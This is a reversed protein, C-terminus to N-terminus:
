SYKLRTLDELLEVKTTITSHSLIFQIFLIWVKKMFRALVEMDTPRQGHHVFRSRIAYVHKVLSVIDMREQATSGLIYAMREGINDQIPESSDKLLMSEVAVLCFILKEYAERAVNNRSYILLADFLRQQFDTRQETSFIAILNKLLKQQHEEKPIEWFSPFPWRADVRRGKFVGSEYRYACYSEVNESGLPRVYLAAHPSTNVPHIIRLLAVAQEAKELCQECAYEEDAEITLSVAAFGQTKKRIRDFHEEFSVLDASSCTARFIDRWSDVMQATIVKFEVPGFSLDEELCLNAIPILTTRLAVANTLRPLIFESLLDTIEGRFKKQLWEILIDRLFQISVSTNAQLFKLALQALKDLEKFAEGELGVAGGVPDTGEFHIATVEKRFEDIRQSTVRGAIDDETIVMAPVRQSAFPRRPKHPTASVVKSLLENARVNLARAAEPHLEFRPM